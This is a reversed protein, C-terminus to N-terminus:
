AQSNRIRTSGADSQTGQEEWGMAQGATRAPAPLVPLSHSVPLPPYWGVALAFNPNPTIPLLFGQTHIVLSIDKHSCRGEWQLPIKLTKSHPLLGRVARLQRLSGQLGQARKPVWELLQLHTDLTLEMEWACGAQQRHQQSQCPISNGSRPHIESDEQIAEGQGDKSSFWIGPPTPPSPTLQGTFLQPPTQDPHATSSDQSTSREALHEWSFLLTAFSELSSFSSCSSFLHKRAFWAKSCFLSFSSSLTNFSVQSCFSRCIESIWSCSLSTM